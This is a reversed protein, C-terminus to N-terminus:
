IAQKKNNIWLAVIILIGKILMQSQIPFHALLTLNTVIIIIFVDIITGQTSGIGGGLMAGGLVAAAITDLDYGEGIHQDAMGTYGGLLVGFLAEMAGFIMYAKIVIFDTRIGSLRGVTENTGVTYLRRDYSSHGLLITM